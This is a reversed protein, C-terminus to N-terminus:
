GRSETFFNWILMTFTFANTAWNHEVRQLGMSQPGGPEETWPIRWALISSHTDVGKELPDKQGLSWVQTEQVASLNKVDSGGPFGMLMAIIALLVADSLEINRLFCIKFARVVIFFCYNPSLISPNSFSIAVWELVGPQLIGCVSSGPWGCDMPNCLTLCSQTVLM